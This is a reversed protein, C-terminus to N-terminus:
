NTDENLKDYLKLVETEKVNQVNYYGDDKMTQYLTDQMNLTDSLGNEMLSRVNKNSSEVTGNEYLTILSKTLTLVNELTYKDM